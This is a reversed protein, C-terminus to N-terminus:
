VKIILDCWWLLISQWWPVNSELSLCICVSSPRFFPRFMYNYFMNYLVNCYFKTTNQSSTIYITNLKMVNKLSLM